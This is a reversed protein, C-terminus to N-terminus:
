CYRVAANLPFPMRTGRPTPSTSERRMNTRTVGCTPARSTQIICDTVGDMTAKWISNFLLRPLTWDTKKHCGEYVLADAASEEWTFPPSGSVPRNKPVHVTKNTLPDGNHLHVTFRLSSELSHIAAIFFWPIAPNVANAAAQYRSQNKRIRSIIGDVEALKSSKIVCSEFLTIYEAKLETDYVIKAM